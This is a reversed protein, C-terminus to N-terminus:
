AKWGDQFRATNVSYGATEKLGRLKTSAISVWPQNGPILLGGEDFQQRQVEHWLESAKKEDLTAIAQMILKNAQDGSSKQYTWWSDRFPAGRVLDGSYQASLSAFPVYLDVMFPRKYVGAAPTWYTGVPVTKIKINVGAAKAQQAFIAGMKDLGQTPALPLEYTNGTAGAAKLLSKAKEVDQQRTLDTAYYQTEPGVLDYAVNGFGAVSGNVIAQRDVLYKFAQRIRVDAFPGQDVRMGILIQSAAGQSQMVVVNKNSLQARAQAWDPAPMLDIAGSLLANLRATEDQYSSNIVLRDFYPKPHEWYDPNRVFVSQQGPTFSEFKFPGTGIPHKALQKPTMGAPTVLLNYFPWITPFQAYPRVLPIRVTHQDLAKVNKFDVLGVLFPAGYNTAPDSMWTKLSYVVDDAGFPKGNHWTVGQRLKFTWVTANSNPEASLALGPQLPFMKEGPNFFFLPSYLAYARYFDTFLAGTGPFLNEESGGTTAGVTLTGGKVPTGGPLESVAGPQLGSGSSAATSSTSASPSSSSGGCAELLAAAGAVAGLGAARGFLERRNLGRRDEGGAHSTDTGM